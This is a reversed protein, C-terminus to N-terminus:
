RGVPCIRSCRVEGARETATQSPTSGVGNVFLQTLEERRRYHDFRRQSETVMGM